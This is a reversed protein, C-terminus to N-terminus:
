CPYKSQKKEYNIKVPKFQPRSDAVPNGILYVNHEVKLNGFSPPLTELQNEELNLNRGVKLNGFNEPLSVLNNNNLYLDGGVKLNGFNEPLEELKNNELDLNGDVILDGFSEPLTKLKNYSLNLADNVHLFGISEPLSVIKRGSWCISRGHADGMLGGEYWPGNVTLHPNLAVIDKAVDEVTADYRFRVSLWAGDEIGFDTFNHDHLVEGEDGLFVEKINKLKLNFVGAIAKHVNETPSVSVKKEEETELDIINILIKEAEASRQQKWFKMECSGGGKLFKKTALYKKKYKLYKKKYDM